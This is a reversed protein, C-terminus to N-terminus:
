KSKLLAGTLAAFGGVLGGVLITLAFANVPLLQNIKETLISSTKLDIYFAFLGWLLAISLFGAVFSVFGKNGTLYAVVATGIAMSWWPLLLQLLLCSLITILIQLFFKM